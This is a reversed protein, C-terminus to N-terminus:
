SIYFLLILAPMRSRRRWTDGISNATRFSRACFASPTMGRSPTLFAVSLRRNMPRGISLGAVAECAGIPGGSDYGGSDLKVKQLYFKHPHEPIAQFDEYAYPLDARGLPAGYKGSLKELKPMDVM